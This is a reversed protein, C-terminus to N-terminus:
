EECLANVMLEVHPKRVLYAGNKKIPSISSGSVWIFVPAPGKLKEYKESVKHYENSAMTDLEYLVDDCTTVQLIGYANIYLMGYVEVVETESATVNLASLVIIFILSVKMKEVDSTKGVFLLCRNPVCKTIIIKM